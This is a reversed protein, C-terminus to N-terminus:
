PGPIRHPGQNLHEKLVRVAAEIKASQRGTMSSVAWIDAPQYWAPLVRVLSGEALSRAINWAATLMIGHGDAAWQLVADSHNSAMSGAVKVTEQGDPGVARWVGFAEGRERYLLCDHQALDGLSAPAGRRALYSPAACFVRPSPAIHHAILDPEDVDGVRLDLDFGEGVLDVRRDFLELWVVLNPFQHKLASLAPAVHDRGLRLASSIRLIGAPEARTSSLDERMRRLDEIIQMANRFVKEGDETVAVRRTTRHLLKVRLAKELQAIRTSVHTPSVGFELAVASFSARRAVECFLRLDRLLVEDDRGGIPQQM